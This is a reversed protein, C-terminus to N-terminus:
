LGRQLDDFRRIGLFVDRLILLTWREGVVELASAISCVQNDYTSKLVARAYWLQMVFGISSDIRQMFCGVEEGRRTRSTTDAATNMALRSRKMTLMAKGSM